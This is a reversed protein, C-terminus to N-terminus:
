HKWRNEAALDELFGQFGKAQLGAADFQIGLEASLDAAEKTPKAVAALVARIGTISEQTSIGGKTLASVSATLEDFSVNLSAAIPAVKGLGSSLEEITTKGARMGVFLADSVATAGDVQDGYANLVSTLGDAATTVDTVGGVALRNAATLIETAEAATSAGASIVQYFAKTQEIPLTGFEQALRKSTAELSKMSFTTEDVLTSVEALATTFNLSSRMSAAATAVGAVVVGFAAMAASSKASFTSVEKETKKGSRALGDLDRAATKASRSDVELALRAIDVM